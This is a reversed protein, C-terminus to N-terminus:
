PWASTSHMPWEWPGCFYLEVVSFHTMRSPGQGQEPSSPLRDQVRAGSPDGHSYRIRVPDPGAPLLDWLCPGPAEHPDHDPCDPVQGDPHEGAHLEHVHVPVVECVESVEHGSLRHVLLRHVPRGGPVLLTGAIPLILLMAKLLRGKDLASFRDRVGQEVLHARLFRELEQGRAQSSFAQSRVPAEVFSDMREYNM